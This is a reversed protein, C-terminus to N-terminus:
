RESYVGAKPQVCAEGGRKAARATKPGLSGRIKVIWQRQKNNQAELHEALAGGRTDDKEAEYWKSGQRLWVRDLREDQRRVREAQEPTRM